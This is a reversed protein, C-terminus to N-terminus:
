ICVHICSLSLIVRVYKKYWSRCFVAWARHYFLLICVNRRGRRFNELHSWVFMQWSCCGTSLTCAVHYAVSFCYYSSFFCYVLPPSLSSAFLLVIESFGPNILKHSVTKHNASKLPFVHICTDVCNFWKLSLVFNYGWLLELQFTLEARRQFLLDIYLYKLKMLM